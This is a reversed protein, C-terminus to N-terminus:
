NWRRLKSYPNGVCKHEHYECPGKDKLFITVEKRRLGRELVVATQKFVDDVFKQPFVDALMEPLLKREWIFVVLDVCFKRHASGKKTKKYIWKALEIPSKNRDEMRFLFADITADGFDSARLTGALEYCSPMEDCRM